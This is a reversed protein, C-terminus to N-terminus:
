VREKLPLTNAPLLYTKQHSDTRLYAPEFPPFYFARARRHIEEAPTNPLVERLSDISNRPYFRPEGQIPEKPINELSPLHNLLTQFAKCGARIGKQYLSQAHEDPAIDFSETFAIAGADVDPVMWHLTSCFRTEGNLIAHNCANHGQYRPLPASHLNFARFEVQELLASPLIWPHQVSLIFSIRLKKILHAMAEHARDSNDVFPLSRARAERYIANSGWWPHASQNSVVAAVTLHPTRLLAEFCREGVWKQGLFLVRNTM